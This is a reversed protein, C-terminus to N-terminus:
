GEERNLKARIALAFGEGVHERVIKRAGDPTVYLQCLKGAARIRELVEPWDETPPQGDGLIWQIGRLREAALQM